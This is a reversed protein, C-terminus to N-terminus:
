KMILGQKRFDRRSNGPPLYQDPNPVVRLRPLSKQLEDLDLVLDRQCGLEKLDRCSALPLVSMQRINYCDLKELNTLQSLPVLSRIRDCGAIDIRKLPLSSIPICARLRDM